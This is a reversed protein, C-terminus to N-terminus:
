TVPLFICSPPLHLFSSSGEAARPLLARRNGAARSPGECGGHRQCRRPLLLTYPRHPQHLPVYSLRERSKTSSSNQLKKGRHFCPSFRYQNM